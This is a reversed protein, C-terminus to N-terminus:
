VRIYVAAHGKLVAMLRAQASIVPIPRLNVKKTAPLRKCLSISEIVPKITPRPFPTAGRHSSVKTNTVKWVGSYILMTHLLNLSANM